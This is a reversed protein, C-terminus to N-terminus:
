RYVKGRQGIGLGFDAVPKEADADNKETGADRGTFDYHVTVTYKGKFKGALPHRLADSFDYNDMM